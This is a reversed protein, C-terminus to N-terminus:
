LENSKGRRMYNRYYTRYNDMFDAFLKELGRNVATVSRSIILEEYGDPYDDHRRFYDCALKKEREVIFSYGDELFFERKMEKLRKVQDLHSLMFNEEDMIRSSRAFLHARKLFNNKVQEMLIGEDPARRHQRIFSEFFLDCSERELELLSEERASLTKADGILLIKRFSQIYTNVFYEKSLEEDLFRVM